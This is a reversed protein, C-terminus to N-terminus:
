GDFSGLRAYTEPRRTRWRLALVVGLAFVTALTAEFTLALGTSGAILTTFNGILLGLAFLLGVLGLAPAVKTNWVRVDARTRHFFALVAVCTLTMLAILGLTAVGSMWSFLELVPDMGFLAFAGVVLLASVTQALSGLHPSGHRAHCRGFARHVVTERGLSFLYRAVANHFALLVAFLSTALLLAMVDAASAGVYQASASFVLGSPDKAAASAVEDAGQSLVVAWSSLAYFAGILVVALYTAMPVTRRVDRAEEGYIATAEFGMFSAVAFMVAIGPSGSFFAEPTFSVATVGEAGGHALVAVDFLVIIGVECLLLVSLVKVSLDVNRYGLAGVLAMAALAWCWWPLSPGGFDVALGSLTSGFLGYVAAQVATYSLLAVFAAGLGLPRGLGRTVYSYFAGANTIHRSMAAYGVSFLLLVIAILLYAAPLGPGNGIGLAVPVAGAVVTLPSSAAIVMFVIAAVGLSGKLREPQDAVRSTPGTTAPPVTSM